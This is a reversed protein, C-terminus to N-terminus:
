NLVKQFIRYKKYVEGGLKQMESRMKYNEELEMHSDMIKFGLKRGSQIMEYGFQVDIGIGQFKKKIGGTLLDLQTSKKASRLISLFGFPFLFGKSARFGKCMNPMAIIFGVIKEGYYAVKVLQPNLVLIYKNALDNMERKDLQSYGYIDIFCENMLSMVPFIAKKLENKTKFTKIRIKSKQSVKQYIKQYNEPLKATLDVKYVMLNKDISYGSKTMIDPIYKFNINTAVAPTHEFGDILFGMPDHYYMGMPGILKEMGRKLAWNEVHALLDRSVHEDDICDLMSFRGYKTNTTDNYRRNIIGLIRGVTHGNKHCLLLITDCYQLAHNKKPNFYNRDDRYIPPVWSIHNKHLKWPLLIFEKLEKKSSIIKTEIKHPDIKNTNM